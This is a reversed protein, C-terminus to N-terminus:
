VVGGLTYGSVGNEGVLVPTKKRRHEKLNRRHDPKLARFARQFVEVRYDRRTEIRRYNKESPESM